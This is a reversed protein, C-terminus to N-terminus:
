EMSFQHNHPSQLLGESVLIEPKEVTSVRNGRGDEAIVHAQRSSSFLVCFVDREPDASV